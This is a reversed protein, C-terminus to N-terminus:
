YIPYNDFNPNPDPFSYAPLLNSGPTDGGASGNALVLAALAEDSARLLQAAVNVEGDRVPYAYEVFAAARMATCSRAAEYLTLDVTGARASVHAAAATILRAAQEDTPTTNATFTGSPEDNGAPNFAVTRTPVFDGVEKLTPEWPVPSTWDGRVVLAGYETIEVAGTGVFKWRWTGVQDLVVDAHYLGTGDHAVTGAVDTGDPKHTTQSVTADALAGFDSRVTVSTRAIDGLDYSM